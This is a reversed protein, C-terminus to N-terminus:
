AAKKRRRKFNGKLVKKSRKKGNENLLPRLTTKWYENISQWKDSDQRTWKPFKM